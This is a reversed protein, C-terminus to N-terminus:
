ADYIKSMLNLKFIIIILARCLTLQNTQCHFKTTDIIFVANANTCCWVRIFQNTSFNQRNNFLHFNNIAKIRYWETSELYRACKWWVSSSNFLKCNGLFHSVGQFHTHVAFCVSQYFNASFHLSFSSNANKKRSSKRFAHIISILFQFPVFESDMQWAGREM